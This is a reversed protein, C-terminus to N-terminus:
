YDPRTFLLTEDAEFPYDLFSKRYSVGAVLHVFEEDLQEDYVAYVQRPCFELMMIGFSHEFFAHPGPGRNRYAKYAENIDMILKRHLDHTLGNFPISKWDKFGHFYGRACDSLSKYVFPECGLANSLSLARIYDAGTYAEHGLIPSNIGYLATMVLKLEQLEVGPLTVSDSIDDISGNHFTEYLFRSNILIRAHVLVEQGAVM